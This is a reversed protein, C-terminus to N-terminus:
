VKLPGYIDEFTLPGVKHPEVQSLYILRQANGVKPPLPRSTHLWGCVVTRRIQLTRALRNVGFEHAWQRFALSPQPPHLTPLEPEPRRIFNSRRTKIQDM